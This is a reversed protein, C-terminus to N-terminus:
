FMKEQSVVWTEMLVIMQQFLFSPTGISSLTASIKNAIIGSKGVGCLIIKRNVILLQM